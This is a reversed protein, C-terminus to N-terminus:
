TAFPLCNAPTLRIYMAPFISWSLRMIGLLRKRVATLSQSLSAGAFRALAALYVGNLIPTIVLNATLLKAIAPLMGTRGHFVQELAM